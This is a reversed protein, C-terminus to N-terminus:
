AVQKGGDEPNEPIGSQDLLMELEQLRKAQPNSIVINQIVSGDLSVVDGVREDKHRVFSPESAEGGYHGGDRGPKVEFLFREPESLSIALTEGRDSQRIDAVVGKFGIGLGDKQLTTVVYALPRYDNQAPRIIYNYVWGQNNLDVGELLLDFGEDGIIAGVFVIELLLTVAVLAVDQPMLTAGHALQVITEVPNAIVQPLARELGPHLLALGEGIALGSIRAAFFVYWAALHALMSIMISIALVSVATIPLDPRSASHRRARINWFLVSFLGPLLLAIGAIVSLTLAM